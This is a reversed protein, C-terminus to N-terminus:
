LGPVKVRLHKAQRESVQLQTNAIDSMIVIYSSRFYPQIERILNLNVVAARNARFFQRSSLNNELETLPLDVTYSNKTSHAKVLGDEASFFVIEEPQLLYFRDRRKGVIRDIRTEREAVIDRLHEM